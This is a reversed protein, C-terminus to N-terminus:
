VEWFTTLSDLKRVFYAIELTSQNSNYLENVYELVKELAKRKQQNNERKIKDLFFQKVTTIGYREIVKGYDDMSPLNCQVLSYSNLYDFMKKLINPKEHIASKLKECLKISKEIDKYREGRKQAQSKEGQLSNIKNDVLRIFNSYNKMTNKLEEWEDKNFIEKKIWFIDRDNLVKKFIEDMKSTM